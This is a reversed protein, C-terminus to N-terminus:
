GMGLLNRIADNRYEAHSKIEVILLDLLNSRDYLLSMCCEFVQTGLERRANSDFQLLEARFYVSDELGLLADM